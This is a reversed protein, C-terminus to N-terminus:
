MKCLPAHQQLTKRANHRMRPKPAPRCAGGATTPCRTTKGTKPLLCTRSNNTKAYTAALQHQSAPM